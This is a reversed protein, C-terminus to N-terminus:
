VLEEGLILQLVQNSEVLRWGALLRDPHHRLQQLICHLSRAFGEVGLDRLKDVFHELLLPLVQLPSPRCLVLLEIAGSLCLLESKALRDMSQKRVQLRVCETTYFGPRSNQIM